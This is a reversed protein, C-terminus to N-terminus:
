EVEKYFKNIIHRIDVWADQIDDTPEDAWEVERTIVDDIIKIKEEGVKKDVKPLNLISLVTKRLNGGARPNTRPSGTRGGGGTRTGGGGGRPPTVNKM